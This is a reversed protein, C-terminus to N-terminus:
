HQPTFRDPQKQAESTKAMSRPNQLDRNAIMTIGDEAAADFSKADVDGRSGAMEACILNAFPDLCQMIPVVQTGDTVAAFDGFYAQYRIRLDVPVNAGPYFIADERWEWM